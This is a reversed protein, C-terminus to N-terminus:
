WSATASKFPLVLNETEEVKVGGHRMHLVEPGNEMMQLEAHMICVQVPGGCISRGKTSATPSNMYAYHYFTCHLIKFSITCPVHSNM